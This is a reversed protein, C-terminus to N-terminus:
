EKNIFDSEADTDLINSIEDAGESGLLKRLGAKLLIPAAGISIQMGIKKIRDLTGSISVDDYNELNLMFEAFFSMFADQTFDTEWANFYFCPYKKSLASKWNLLFHTKGTGWPGDLNLVFGNKNNALLSTLFESINKQEKDYAWDAWPQNPEQSIEIQRDLISTM